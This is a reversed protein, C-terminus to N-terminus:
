PTRRSRDPSASRATTILWRLRENAIPKGQARMRRALDAQSLRRGDHRAQRLIASAAEVLRRDRETLQTTPHRPPEVTCRAPLLRLVADAPSTATADVVGIAPVARLTIRESLPTRCRWLYHGHDQQLQAIMALRQHELALGQQYSTIHWLVMHRLLLFSSRPALLWRAAPIRETRTGDALGVAQRILHRIGEVVTIFMVPMAAHMVEAIPNGQAAAVNLYVTAAIFAWATWRLPPWPLGLYEDLLDWALLALIGIDIGVPIIWAQQGFWPVALHRVTAFSGIGGLVALGCVLPSIAAVVFKMATATNVVHPPSV